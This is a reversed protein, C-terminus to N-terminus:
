CDCECITTVVLDGTEFANKFALAETEGLEPVRGGGTHKIEDLTDLVAAGDDNAADM